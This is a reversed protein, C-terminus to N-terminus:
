LALFSAAATSFIRNKWQDACCSLSKQGGRGLTQTKECQHRSLAQSKNSNSNVYTHTQEHKCKQPGANGPLFVFILFIMWLLKSTADQALPQKPNPKYQPLPEHHLSLNHNSTLCHVYDTFTKEVSTICIHKAYYHIHM